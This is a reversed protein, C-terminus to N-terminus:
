EATGGPEAPSAPNRNPDGDRDFDSALKGLSLQLLSLQSLTERLKHRATEDLLSNDLRSLLKEKDFREGQTMRLDLFAVLALRAYDLVQECLAPAMGQKDSPIPAGHIFTSRIEYAQVIRNYIEIPRGGTHQILASVRQALRHSLETREAAKLFLAELCTIASTIRAETAGALFLADKYRQLAIALPDGAIAPIAFTSYSSITPQLGKYFQRLPAADAPRIGYRYSVVLQTILYGLTGGFRTFSRPSLKTNRAVVSALRFLRLTDLVAEIDRQVALGDKDRVVLELVASFMEFGPIRTRPLGYPVESEFDGPAARRLVCNDALQVTEAELWIGDVPAYVQWDVAAGDLDQVFTVVSDALTSDNSNDKLRNAVLQVFRLLLVDAQEVSVGQRKAIAEVATQYEVRPKVRSEVFHVQDSIDWQERTVPDIRTGWNKTGKDYTFNTVVTRLYLTPTPRLNGEAKYAQLEDLLARCLNWLIGSLPPEAISSM